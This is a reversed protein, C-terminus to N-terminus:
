TRRQKRKRQNVTYEFQYFYRMISTNLERCACFLSSISCMIINMFHSVYKSLLFFSGFFEVSFCFLSESYFPFFLDIYCIFVTTRAYLIINLPWQIQALQKASIFWRDTDSSLNSIDFVHVNIHFCKPFESQQRHQTERKRRWINISM